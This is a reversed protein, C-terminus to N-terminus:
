REPKVANKATKAKKTAKASQAVALSKHAWGRLTEADDLVDEPVEFYSLMTPGSGPSWPSMSRVEYDSRNSDNVKLFFRDDDLVGIILSNAYLGAGGFMSKSTVPMGQNLQDLVYERYSQTVAM